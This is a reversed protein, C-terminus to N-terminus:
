IQVREDIRYGCKQCYIRGDWHKWCHRQGHCNPCFASQVAGCDLCKKVHTDRLPRFMHTQGKYTWPTFCDCPRLESGHWASNGSLWEIEAGCRSCWVVGQYVVNLSGCIGCGYSRKVACETEHRNRKTKHIPDHDPEPYM